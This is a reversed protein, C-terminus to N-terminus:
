GRKNYLYGFISGCGGGIIHAFQSINDKSLIGQVIEKGLFVFLIIIFTLPIKGKEVNVFSGLLIFMFAIGSAGLLMIQPFFLVNLIGTVGATILIMEIIIKSGYKEEVMPGILLIITFNGVFHQWNVHGFVHTFIRIYQLPDLVSTRYVSFLFKTINGHSLWGLFYAGLSILTFTLIVPSNYQFKNKIGELKM